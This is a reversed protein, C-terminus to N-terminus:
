RILIFSLVAVPLLTIITLFITKFWSLKQVEKSAIVTIVISWITPIITYLNGLISNTKFLSEPLIYTALLIDVFAM